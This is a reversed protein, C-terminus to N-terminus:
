GITPARFRLSDVRDDNIAALAPTDAEEDWQTQHPLPFDARRGTGRRLCQDSRERRQAGHAAQAFQVASKDQRDALLRLATQRCAKSPHGLLDVLAPTSLRSFDVPAVAKAGKAADDGGSSGAFVRKGGPLAVQRANCTNSGDKALSGDITVPDGPKLDAKGWGNRILGNPAGGECQWKSIAGKEDKADLYIWIHPNM